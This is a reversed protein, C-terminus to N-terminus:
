TTDHRDNLKEITERMADGNRDLFDAFWRAFKEQEAEIRKRRMTEAAMKMPTSWGCECTDM